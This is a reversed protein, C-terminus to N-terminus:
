FQNCQQQVSQKCSDLICLVLHVQTLNVHGTRFFVLLTLRAGSVPLYNKVSDAINLFTHVRATHYQDKSWFIQRSAQILMKIM